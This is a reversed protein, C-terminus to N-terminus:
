ISKLFQNRFQLLNNLYEENNEISTCIFEYLKNLNDTTNFSYEKFYEKKFSAIFQDKIHKDNILSNWKANKYEKKMKNIQSRVNKWFSYYYTKIKVHHWEEDNLVFWELNSSYLENLKKDTLYKISRLEWYKEKVYCWIKKWIKLLEDYSTTQQEFTNEFIDLLYAWNKWDYDIIHPDEDNDVIEFVFSKWKKLYPLMKKEFQKCYKEVLTPFTWEINSKSCYLVKKDEKDYWVIWLFWNEKVYIDIKWKFTEKINNLSSEPLEWLNFFKNYSRAVIENKNIDVFLWRAKTNEINWLKNFFAERTFNFSVIHDNLIKMNILPDKKLKNITIANKYDDFLEYTRWVPYKKLFLYDIDKEDVWWYIFHYKEVMNDFDIKNEKELKKETIWLDSLENFKVVNPLSFFSSQLIIQLSDYMKKIVDEPVKQKPNRTNNREYLTDLTEDFTKIALTYWYRQALEYYWMLNKINTQTADIVTFYWYKLRTRLEQNIFSWIKVNDSQDIVENWDKDIKYGSIAIRYRDANFCFDTLNNNECWTSKWSWPAWQTLILIKKKKM